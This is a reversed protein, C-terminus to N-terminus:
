APAGLVASQLTEIFQQQDIPKAVFKVDTPLSGLKAFQEPTRSSVAVIARPRVVCQTSLQRLMEVGNMHPMVIDTILVDPVKQGISVLAQFGNEAVTIAAGPLATEVLAVLLDRDDPNDDVVIVSVPTEQAQVGSTAHGALQLAHSKFFAEASEADIRRHGGVTKWANLHGSDVWRQVTPISVGLRRAVEATSYSAAPALPETM